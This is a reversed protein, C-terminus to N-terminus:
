QAGTRAVMQRRRSGAVPLAIRKEGARGAMGQMAGSKVTAQLAKEIRPRALLVMKRGALIPCGGAYCGISGAGAIVITKGHTIM